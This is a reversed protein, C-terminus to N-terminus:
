PKNVRAVKSKQNGSECEEHGCGDSLGVGPLRSGDPGQVLRNELRLGKGLPSICDVM